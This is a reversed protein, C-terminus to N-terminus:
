NKFNIVWIFFVDYKMIELVKKWMKVDRVKFYM